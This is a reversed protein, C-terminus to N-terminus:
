SDVVASAIVSIRYVFSRLLFGQLVCSSTIYSVLFWFQPHGYAKLSSTLENLSSLFKELIGSLKNGIDLAITSMQINEFSYIHLVNLVDNDASVEEVVLVVFVERRNWVIIVSTWLLQPCVYAKLAIFICFMLHMM